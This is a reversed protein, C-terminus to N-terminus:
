FYHCTLNSNQIHQLCQVSWVGDFLEGEFPLSTADACVLFVNHSEILDGLVKRAILLNEYVFDLIVVIPGNPNSELKRWHWGWCGGIDLIIYDKPMRELFNKVQTDMVAISHSKAVMLLPDGQLIQAVKSRFKIETHNSNISTSKSQYIQNNDIVCRELIKQINKKM